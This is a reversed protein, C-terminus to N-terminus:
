TAILTPPELTLGSGSYQREILVTEQELNLESKETGMKFYRVVVPHTGQGGNNSCCVVDIGMM